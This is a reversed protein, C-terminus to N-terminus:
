FGRDTELLREFWPEDHALDRPSGDLKVCGREMFIVRDFEMIGELHHTIVILTKGDFVGLLTTLVDRETQPDLGTFPEDLVIIPRKSLLARALSLRHAEGGSLGIGTEGMGTDLGNELENFKSELGVKTLADVLEADAADPNALALNERLTMDFVYASQPIYCIAQSLGPPDASDAQSIKVSGCKPALDGRLVGALTSKGAGSPGLVAVKQGDPIVLSLSELADAPGQPYRYSVNALVISGGRPTQLTNESHCATECAMIEDLNAISEAHTTFDSLVGPLVAISEILPFFGLAFAAIYNASEGNAQLSWAAAVVVLVLGIGLVANSCLTAIRAARRVARDADLVKRGASDHRNRVDESRGALAWDKAGIVDDALLSYEDSRIAKAKKRMPSTIFLTSFPIALATFVGCAILVLAIGLSFFGSFVAALAIVAWGIITPFAVRLYLNQLHGIDDSLLELYQGTALRSSPDGIHAEVSEFLKLRLSSTVRFVWDHSVLRELYRLIPRGIGFLQVLAVAVMAMFLTTAPLATKSILYGSVFMLLSACSLTAIGLAIAIAANRRYPLVLSRLWTPAKTCATTKM